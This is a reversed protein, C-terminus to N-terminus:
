RGPAFSISSVQPYLILANFTKAPVFVDSYIGIANTLFPEAVFPLYALKGPYSDSVIKILDNDDANQLVDFKYCTSNSGENPLSGRVPLFLGSWLADGYKAALRVGLWAGGNDGTTYYATKQAHATGCMVIIKGWGAVYTEVDDVIIDERALDSDTHRAEWSALEVKTLRVARDYWLDGWSARYARENAALSDGIARVADRYTESSFNYHTNVLTSVRPDTQFAAHDYLAWSYLSPDHNMDFNVLHMRD